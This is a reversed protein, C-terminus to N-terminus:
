LCSATEENRCLRIRGWNSVIINWSGGASQLRIHGAWASNRLGYFGLGPTIHSLSVEPWRPLLIFPTAPTCNATAEMASLCWGDAHQVVSLLRNRNHWNADDRLLVLYDRVQNATQWLRQQQQWSQWGYLAGASLILMLALTILTEILTYGRQRNM